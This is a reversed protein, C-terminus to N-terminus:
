GNNERNLTRINTFEVKKLANLRNKLLRTQGHPIAAINM